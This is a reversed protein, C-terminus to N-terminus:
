LCHRHHVCLLFPYIQHLASGDLEPFDVDPTANCWSFIPWLGLSGELISLLIGTVLILFQVPWDAAFEAKDFYRGARKM